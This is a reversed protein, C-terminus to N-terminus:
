SLCKIYNDNYFSEAILVGSLKLCMEKINKLRIWVPTIGYTQLSHPFLKLYLTVWRVWLHKPFDSSAVGLGFGRVLGRASSFAEENSSFVWGKSWLIVESKVCLTAYEVLGEKLGLVLLWGMLFNKLWETLQTFTTLFQVENYMSFLTKLISTTM